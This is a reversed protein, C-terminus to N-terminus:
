DQHKGAHCHAHELDSIFPRVRNTYSFLTLELYKEMADLYLSM